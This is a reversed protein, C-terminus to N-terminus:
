ALVAAENGSDTGLTNAFTSGVAVTSYSRLSGAADTPVASVASLGLAAAAVLQALM